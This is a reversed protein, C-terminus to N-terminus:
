LQCGFRVSGWFSGMGRPRVSEATSSSLRRPRAPHRSSEDELRGLAVGLSGVLALVGVTAPDDLLEGDPEVGLPCGAAGSGLGVARGVERNLAASSCV